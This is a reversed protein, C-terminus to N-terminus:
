KTVESCSTKLVLQLIQQRRTDGGWRGGVVAGSLEALGLGSAKAATVAVGAQRSPASFLFIGWCVACCTPRGAGPFCCCEATNRGGRM